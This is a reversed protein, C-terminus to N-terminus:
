QPKDIKPNVIRRKVAYWLAAVGCAVGFIWVILLAWGNM